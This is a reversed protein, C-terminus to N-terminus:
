PKNNVTNQNPNTSIEIRCLVSEYLDLYVFGLVEYTVIALRLGASGPFFKICKKYLLTKELTIQRPKTTQPVGHDPRRTPPTMSTHLVKGSNTHLDTWFKTLSQNLPEHTFSPCLYPVFTCVTQKAWSLKKLTVGGFM